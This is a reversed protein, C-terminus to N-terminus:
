DRPLGLVVTYWFVVAVLLCVAAGCAVDGDIV